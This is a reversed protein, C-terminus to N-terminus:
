QMFLKEFTDGSCARFAENTMAAQPLAALAPISSITSRTRRFSAVSVDSYRMRVLLSSSAEHPSSASARAAFVVIRSSWRDLWGTLVVWALDRADPRALFPLTRWTEIPLEVRPSLANSASQSPKREDLDSSDRSRSFFPNVLAEQPDRAAATSPLAAM